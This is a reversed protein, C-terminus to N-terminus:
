LINDGLISIPAIQGGLFIRGNLGKSIGNNFEVIKIEEPIETVQLWWEIINPFYPLENSAKFIVIKNPIKNM